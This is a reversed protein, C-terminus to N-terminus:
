AVMFPSGNKMVFEILSVSIGIPDIQKRVRMIEHTYAVGWYQTISYYLPPYRGYTIDLVKGKYVLFSHRVYMYMMDPVVVRCDCDARIFGTVLQLDPLHVCKSKQLQKIYLMANKHCEANGCYKAKPLEEPFTEWTDTYRKGYELIYEYFMPYNDLKAKFSLWDKITLCESSYEGRFLDENM